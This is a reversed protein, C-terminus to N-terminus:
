LSVTERDACKLCMKWTKFAHGDLADGTDLYHDGKNIKGTGICKCRESQGIGNCDHESRAMRIKGNHSLWYEKHTKM